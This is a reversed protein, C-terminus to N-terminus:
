VKCNEDENNDQSIEKILQMLGEGLDIHLPLTIKRALDPQYAYPTRIYHGRGKKEAFQVNDKLGLMESLMLLMDEVRTSETGSLILRQNRMYLYIVM